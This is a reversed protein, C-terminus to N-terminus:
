DPFHRFVRQINGDGRWRGTGCCWGAVSGHWKGVLPVTKECAEITKKRDKDEIEEKAERLCFDGDGLISDVYKM